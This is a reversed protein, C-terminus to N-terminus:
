SRATFTSETPAPPSSTTASRACREALDPTPLAGALYGSIAMIAVVLALFSQGSTFGAPRPVSSVGDPGHTFGIANTLVVTLIQQFSITVMALYHGGLRLTMLGLGAGAALAIAM